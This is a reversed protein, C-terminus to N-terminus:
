IGAYWSYSGTSNRVVDTVNLKTIYKVSKYGLQRPVRMRLPGGHGVPLDNGNMAYTLITQPHLADAMDISNGWYKQISAYSVFRAQPAVGAAELVTSLRVGTWEAIFSWGEECALQTIQTTAPFRKLEALSFSVPRAVMGGVLLRWDSFGGAQLLKFADDPPDTENAFPKSSIQGSTFERAMSHGTLVRQAAYTLTEGPGFIGHYNPPVLGYRSVASTAAALGSAGVAAGILRRRSITKM